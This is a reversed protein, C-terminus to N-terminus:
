LSKKINQSIKFVYYLIFVSFYATYGNQIYADRRIYIHLRSFKYMCFMYIFLKRYPHLFIELGGNERLSISMCFRIAYSYSCLFIDKENYRTFFRQTTASAYVLIFNNGKEHGKKYTKM